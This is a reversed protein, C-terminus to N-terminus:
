VDSSFSASEHLNFVHQQLSRLRIQVDEEDTSTCSATIYDTIRQLVVEREANLKENVVDALMEAVLARFRVSAQQICPRLLQELSERYAKIGEHVFFQNLHDYGEILPDIQIFIDDLELKEQFTVPLSSPSESMNVPFGAQKLAEASERQFQQFQQAAFTECRWLTMRMDDNFERMIWHLLEYTQRKLQSTFNQTESFSGRNLVRKFEDGFKFMTRQMLHFFQEHVEEKVVEVYVNVSMAKVQSVVTEGASEVRQIRTVRDLSLQYLQRSCEQEIEKLLRAAEIKLRGTIENQLYAQITQKIFPWGGTSSNNHALAEKASVPLVCPPKQYLAQLNATTYSLVEHLERENEALDSANLLFFTHDSTRIDNAAAMSQIVSVDSRSFAHTYYMMYIMVDANRLEEFARETHLTHISDVGPTDIITANVDSFAHARYLVAEKVLLAQENDKTLLELEHQDLFITSGAHHEAELLKESLKWIVQLEEEHLLDHISTEETEEQEEGESSDNYRKKTFLAQAEAANVVKKGAFQLYDNIDQLLEDATKYRVQARGNSFEPTPPRIEMPFATTPEPSAPFHAGEAIVNLLTSKGTSFKGFLAIRYSPTNLKNVLREVTETFSYLTPLDKMEEAVDALQAATLQPVSERRKGHHHWQYQALKHLDVAENENQYATLQFLRKVSAPPNAPQLLNTLQEEVHTQWNQIAEDKTQKDELTHLNQWAQELGKDLEQIKEKKAEEAYRQIAPLILQLRQKMEFKLELSINRCFQIVYEQSLRAGKREARLLIDSTIHFHLQSTIERVRERSCNLEYLLVEVEKRVPLYFHIDMQEQLEHLLKNEHDTQSKRTFPLQLLMKAKKTGAKEHLYNRAAVRASHPTLSAKEWFQDIIRFLKKEFRKEFVEWDERENQLDHVQQQQAELKRNAFERINVQLQNKFQYLHGWITMFPLHYSACWASLNLLLQETESQEHDPHHASIFIPPEIDAKAATKLHEFHSLFQPGPREKLKDVQTMIPIIRWHFQCLSALFDTNQSSAAQQVDMCFLIVDANPLAEFAASAHLEETSDVGPTDMLQVGYPLQFSESQIHLKEIAGYGKCFSQVEEWDPFSNITKTDGNTFKLHLSEEGRSLTVVNASTPVPHSPLAEVGLLANILSSKGSSFLGAFAITMQLSAAKLELRHLLRYFESQQIPPPNTKLQELLAKLAAENVTYTQEFNMYGQDNVSM